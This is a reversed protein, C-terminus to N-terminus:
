EKSTKKGYENGYLYKKVDDRYRHVKEGDVKLTSGKEILDVEKFNKYIVSRAVLEAPGYEQKKQFVVYGVEVNTLSSSDIVIKSLDKAVLALSVSDIHCNIVKFDSKEGASIAKDEVLRIVTNAITLISGSGDIADNGIKTFKCNYINGKCYDADLADSACSTFSSNNLNFDSHVFNIADESANSLFECFQIDVPSEYFTVAGTLTWSENEVSSLNDFRAHKWESQAKAKLVHVGQGTTDSSYVLVPEKLTGNIFIPSYSVISAGKQLDITQGKKILFSYGQPIILPVTLTVSQNKFLVTDGQVKLCTDITVSRPKELNNEDYSLNWNLDPLFKELKHGDIFRTGAVREKEYEQFQVCKQIVSQENLLSGFLSDKSEAAHYSFVEILNSIPNLYYAFQLNKASFAKYLALFTGCKDVDFVQWTPVTHNKWASLKSEITHKAKAKIDGKPVHIIKVQGDYIFAVGDKREHSELLIKNIREQFYWLRTPSPSYVNVFKSKLGLVGERELVEQFLNEVAFEIFQTSDKIALANFVRKSFLTNKGKIKVRYRNKKRKIVALMESKKYTMSFQEKDQEGVIEKSFELNPFIGNVLEDKNVEDVTCSYLLIAFAILTKKIM